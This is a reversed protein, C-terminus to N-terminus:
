ATMICGTQTALSCVLDKNIKILALLGSQSSLAMTYSVM